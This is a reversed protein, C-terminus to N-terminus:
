GGATPMCARLLMLGILGLAILSWATSWPGGSDSRTEIPPAEPEQQQEMGEGDFFSGGPPSGWPPEV